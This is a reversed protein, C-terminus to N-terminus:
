TKKDPDIRYPNLLRSWMKEDFQRFMKYLPDCAAGEANDYIRDELNIDAM